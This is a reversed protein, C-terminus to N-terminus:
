HSQCILQYQIRVFKRLVKNERIERILPRERFYFCSFKYAYQVLKSSCAVMRLNLITFITLHLANAFIHGVFIQVCVTYMTFICMSCMNTHSIITVYPCQTFLSVLTMHALPQLVINLGGDHLIAPNLIIM